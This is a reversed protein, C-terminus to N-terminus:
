AKTTAKTNGKFRPRLWHRYLLISAGASIAAISVVTATPIGGVVWNDIRLPELSLRVAGYWILYFLFIDGDKLQTRLRRGVLLMVGCGLFNLMSEYFFLPHFESITEFGALRNEPNIEIAWPVSTPEGYLEQNFFNGWRGVAQGLIFAPAGIDLWRLVPLGKWRTYIGLGVIAGIVAGYIGIGGENIQIVRLVDRSYIENWQDIVHYARAGILSTPLAILLLNFVHNTDENRRKAETTALWAGLGLGLAVLTSYWRLGFGGVEFIYEV